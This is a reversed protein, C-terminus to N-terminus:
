GDTRRGFHLLDYIQMNVMYNACEGCCSGPLKHKKALYRKRSYEPSYWIERFSQEKLNGIAEQDNCCFRVNGQADVWTFLWGVYCPIKQYLGATSFSAASDFDVAKFYLFNNRIRYKEARGATAALCDRFWVFEDGSLKIGELEHRDATLPGISVEDAKIRHALEVLEPLQRYNNKCVVLHLTVQSGATKIIKIKDILQYFLDEPQGTIGAWDRANSAGINIKITARADFYSLCDQGISFGNTLFHYKLRSSQLASLIRNIEPHLFPEGDACFTISQASMEELELLFRRIFDLPLVRPHARPRNILGSYHRCFICRSNCIDELINLNVNWPACFAKKGSLIGSFLLFRQKIEALM